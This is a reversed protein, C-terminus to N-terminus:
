KNVSHLYQTSSDDAMIDHKILGNDTLIAHMVHFLCVDCQTLVMYHSIGKPVNDTLSWFAWLLFNRTIIEYSQSLSALGHEHLKIDLHCHM